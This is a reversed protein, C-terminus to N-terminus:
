NYFTEYFGLQLVFAYIFFFLVVYFVKKKLEM